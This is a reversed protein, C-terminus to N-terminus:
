WDRVTNIYNGGIRGGVSENDTSLATVYALYIGM